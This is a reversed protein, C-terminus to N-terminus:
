VRTEHFTHGTIAPHGPTPRSRALYVTNSSHGGTLANDFTVVGTTVREFVTTLIAMSDGDPPDDSWLAFVGDRRLHQSMAQLGPETYFAAHDPHLHHSPTHDIDVLIADFRKDVGRHRMLSFFDDVTITM